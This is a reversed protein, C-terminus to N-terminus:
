NLSALLKRAEEAEGSEPAIHIVHQYYFRALQNRGGSQNAQGRKLFRRVALQEREAQVKDSVQRVQKARERLDKASDTESFEEALAQIENAAREIEQPSGFQLVEDARALASRVKEEAQRAVAVLRSEVRRLVPERYGRQDLIEELLTIAAGLQGRKVHEEAQAETEAITKVTAVPFSHLVIGYRSKGEITLPVRARVSAGEAEATCETPDPLEVFLMRGSREIGIEELTRAGSEWAELGKEGEVRLSGKPVAFELAAAGGEARYSIEVRRGSLVARQSFRCPQPGAGLQGALSLRAMTESYSWHELGVTSQRANGSVLEARSVLEPEGVRVSFDGSPSFSVTMNGTALPLARGQVTGNGEVTETPGRESPGRMVTFVLWVAAAIGALGVFAGAIQSGAGTSPLRIEQEVPEEAKQVPALFVFRTIGVTIMDGPHLSASKVKTGNVRTGNTSGLDLVKYGTGDLEIQCHDKSAKEDTIVVDSGQARGIRLPDNGLPYDRGLGDGELRVIRFGTSRPLEPKAVVTPEAEREPAITEGKAKEEGSEVKGEAQWIFHVEPSLEVRDGDSLV